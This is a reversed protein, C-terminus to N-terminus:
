RAAPDSPEIHACARLANLGRQTSFPEIDARVALQKDDACTSSHVLQRPSRSQRVGGRSEAAASETRRSNSASSAPLCSARVDILLRVAFTVASCVLSASLLAAACCRAVSAFSTAFRSLSTVACDSFSVRSRSARLALSRTAEPPTGAHGASGQSDSEPGRSRGVRASIEAPANSSLSPADFFQSASNAARSECIEHSRAWSASEMITVTLLASADACLNAVDFLQARLQQSAISSSGLQLAGPLAGLVYHQASGIM